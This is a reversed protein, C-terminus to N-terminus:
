LEVFLKLDLFCLVRRRGRAADTRRGGGNVHTVSFCSGRTERREDDEEESIIIIVFCTRAQSGANCCSRSNFKVVLPIREFHELEAEKM